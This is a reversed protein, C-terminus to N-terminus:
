ENKDMLCCFMLDAVFNKGLPLFKAFNKGRPFFKTASRMNKTEHVFIFLKKNWYHLKQRKVCPSFVHTENLHNWSQKNESMSFAFWNQKWEHFFTLKTGLIENKTVEHFLLHSHWEMSTVNKQHRHHTVSLTVSLTKAEVAWWSQRIRRHDSCSVM